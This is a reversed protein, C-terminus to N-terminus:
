TTTTPAANGKGGRNLLRLAASRPKATASTALQTALEHSRREQDNREATVTAIQVTLDDVQRRLRHNDQEAHESAHRAAHLELTLTARLRAEELSRESEKQRQAAADRARETLTATLADVEDLLSRNHACIGRLVKNEAIISRMKRDIDEIVDRKVSADHLLDRMRSTEKALVEKNSTDTDRMRLLETRMEEVVRRSASLEADKRELSLAIDSMQSALTAKSVALRQEFKRSMRDEDTQWSELDRLKMAVNALTAQWVARGRVVFPAVAPLARSLEDYADFVRQLDQMDIPLSECALPKSGADNETAHPTARRGMAAADTPAPTVHLDATAALMGAVVDAVSVVRHAAVIALPEM